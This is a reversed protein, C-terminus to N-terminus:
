SVIFIRRDIYTKSTKGGVQIRLQKEAEELFTTEIHMERTPMYHLATTTFHFLFLLMIDGIITHNLM